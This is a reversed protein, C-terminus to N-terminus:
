GLDVGLSEGVRKMYALGIGMLCLDPVVNDVFDLQGILHEAEGGTVVVQAWQNADTAIKEVINRIAGVIGFSLGSQIADQTSRGIVGAPVVTDVLPLRATHDALAQSQLRPGPLIAGGRFVGEDDIVDVTVATGIDVVTCAHGTRSFAAAAACVRDVGVQDPHALDVDVPLPTNEGVIFARLDLDDEIHRALWRTVDPVVSAIVIAQRSQNESKGRVSDLAQVIAERDRVPVREVDLVDREVWRAVAVTTNGVDVVVICLPGLDGPAQDSM